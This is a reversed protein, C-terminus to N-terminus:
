TYFICKYITPVPPNSHDFPQQLQKWHEVRLVDAATKDNTYPVFDIFSATTVDQRTGDRFFVRFMFYDMGTEGHAYIVNAWMAPLRYRSESVGIVQSAPIFLSSDQYYNKSRQFLVRELQRGDGLNTRCPWLAVDCNHSQPIAILQRIVTDSLIEAETMRM